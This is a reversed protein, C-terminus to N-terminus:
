LRLSKAVTPLALLQYEPTADPYQAGYHVPYPPIDSYTMLPWSGDSSDGTSQPNGSKAGELPSLKLDLDTFQPIFWSANLGITPLYSTDCSNLATVIIEEIIEIPLINFTAM